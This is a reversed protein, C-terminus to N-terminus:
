EFEIIPQDVSLTEGVGALLKTVKGEREARLVNEMKMAEVVVLDQGTKVEDGVRVVVKALLGPMPSLLHKTTGTPEKAPMRALLEAARASLVRADVQAGWHFLRYVLHRREVQISVRTGNISGRFLPQGFQWDTDVRYINGAIIVAYGDAGPRVTIAHNEGGMVVVWRDDIEPEYGPLQGSIRAARERYRRHIVGCVAILLPPDDHVVNAANFGDPYEEDILETSLRGEKFRPHEVLAGLFTINHTVGRICFENLASRMREIAQGRNAGHTILKALMPDYHISVEGGEYVGTDVRLADSETPPLYRVL